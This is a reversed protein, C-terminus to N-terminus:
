WPGWLNSGEFIGLHSTNHGKAYIFKGIGPNYTVSVHYAMGNNDHFVAQKTNWSSSWIPNGSRDLGNYYQYATRNFIDRKPMRALFVDKATTEQGDTLNALYVYFYSPDVGELIGTYGQGFQAIGVVKVQDLDQHFVPNSDFSWSQGNDTSIAGYSGKWNDDSADFFLYITSNADAILALPKRNPNPSGFIDEAGSLAPRPSNSTIRTFGIKQKSDFQTGLGQGDGWAAYVHGDDAWTMVWQDSGDGASFESSFDFSINQVLESPPYSLTQAFAWCGSELKALTLLGALIVLSIRSISPV